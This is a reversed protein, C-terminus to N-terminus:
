WFLIIYVPLKFIEQLAQAVLAKIKFISPYSNLMKWEGYFKDFLRTVYNQHKLSQSPIPVHLSYRNLNHVIAHGNVLFILVQWVASECPVYSNKQIKCFSM